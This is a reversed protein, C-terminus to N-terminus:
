VQQVDILKKIVEVFLNYSMRLIINARSIM